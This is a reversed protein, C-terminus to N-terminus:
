VKSKQADEKMGAQVWDRTKAAEEEMKAKDKILDKIGHRSPVHRGKEVAPRQLMREEWAKLHPFEDIEIGAWGAAAIWGWHAIDAITCKNGVLYDQKSDALHKDLVGYL